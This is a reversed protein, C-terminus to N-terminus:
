NKIFLTTTEKKDIITKLFYKGAPFQKVNLTVIAHNSFNYLGSKLIVGNANMISVFSRSDVSSNSEIQIYGASPNPFIKISTANSNSNKAFVVSSYTFSGSKETVKLRYYNNGSLPANDTFTYIGNLTSTNSSFFANTLDIFNKGDMSRQLQYTNLNSENESAWNIAISNASTKLASFSKLKIPLVGMPSVTVSYPGTIGSSFSSFVLYYTGTSTFDYSFGANSGALDDNSVIANLLPTAEVFGGSSYLVLFNDLASNTSISTLGTSNITLTILNYYVNKGKNALSTPPTGDNPRDYTPDTVALSGNYTVSVGNYTIQAFVPILCIGLLLTLLSKKM